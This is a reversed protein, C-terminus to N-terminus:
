EGFSELISSSNFLSQNLGSTTMRINTPDFTNSSMRRQQLTLPQSLRFDKFHYYENFDLRFSLCQLTLDPQRNLVLLFSRVLDQTTTHLTEIKGKAHRIYSTFFEKTQSIPDSSTLTNKRHALEKEVESEFDSLFSKLEHVSDFIGRLQNLLERNKLDLLSRSTIAELFRHHASIIEDLDVSRSVEEMLRDWACETAEFMIYYQTQHVFHIMESILLQSRHLVPGLEPIVRQFKFLATQDKWLTSLIMEIRKFRWLANFLQNYRIMDDETLVTGIPGHVKYDLCFVDWGLDRDNVPLIRTDLRCLIEEPEFQANTARVASELIASINHTYLKNAPKQLEEQVLELLHQIFDGQGLLLYHKLAKLHDILKSENILVELVMKSTTKYAKEIVTTLVKDDETFMCDVPNDALWEKIRGRGEYGQNHHCIDKLFNINKGTALVREAQKISIFSPLMSSRIHYKAHWLREKKCSIDAEIFFEGYPDELEGYLIWQCLMLYLPKATTSLLSKTVARIMPDGHHSYKYLMSCLEGGKFSECTTIISSLADLRPRIDWMWVTLKLLTMEEGPSTLPLQESLPTDAIITTQQVQGQVIALLRYYEQLEIDLAHKLGQAMLGVRATDCYTRIQKYFYGLEALRLAQLRSGPHIPKKAAVNFNGKADCKIMAGDIGQFVFILDRILDKEIQRPSLYLGGGGGSTRPHGNMKNVPAADNKGFLHLESRGGRGNGMSISQTMGGGGSSGSVFPRRGGGGQHDVPFAIVKSPLLSGGNNLLKEMNNNNNAGYGSDTMPHGAPRTSTSSPPSTLSPVNSVSRHIKDSMARDSVFSFTPMPTFGDFELNSNPDSQQRPTMLPPQGRAARRAQIAARTPEKDFLDFFLTIMAERNKLLPIGRLKQSLELFRKSEVARDQHILHLKLKEILRTENQTNTPESTYTLSSVVECLDRDGIVKGGTLHKYLEAVRRALADGGGGSGGQSSISTASANRLFSSNNRSSTSSLSSKM